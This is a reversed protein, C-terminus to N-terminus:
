GAIKLAYPHGPGHPGAMVLGTPLRPVARDPAGDTEISRM